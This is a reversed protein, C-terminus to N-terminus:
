HLTTEPPHLKVAELLEELATTNNVDISLEEPTREPSDAYARFRRGLSDLQEEGAYWEAMPNVAKPFAVKALFVQVRPDSLPLPPLGEQLARRM